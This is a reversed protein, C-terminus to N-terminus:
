ADIKRYAAMLADLGEQGESSVGHEMGILGKFGKDRLWKTVAVYDLNGTGPENRGPSAGYQVYSIQDWAKEANEILKDGNGIQGEHYFDALLKCSKRDVLKCLLHGDEFSRVLPPGGTVGHSLPEQALIIGQGEVVDCCRKMLDVAGEIQKERPMSDDRPGPIMTMHTQGTRKALEVGKKMDALIKKVDEESPDYFKVGGGGTIVTVGLEMKKSKIFDGIQEQLEPTQTTLWNEEWARFGLDYAFQIQELFGKPATPLLNLHPAFRSKFVKPEAQLGYTLGTTMAAVTAGTLKCFTRRNM